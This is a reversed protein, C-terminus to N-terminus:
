DESPGVTEDAASPQQSVTTMKLPPSSSAALGTAQFGKVSMLSAPRQRTSDSRTRNRIVYRLVCPPDASPDM